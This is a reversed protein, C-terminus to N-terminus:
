ARCAALCPAAGPLCSRDQWFLTFLSLTSAARRVCSRQRRRIARRSCDDYLCDVQWPDDVAKVWRAFLEDALRADAERAATHLSQGAPAPEKLTMVDHFANGGARDRDREDGHRPVRPVRHGREPGRRDQRERSQSVSRASLRACCRLHAVGRAPVFRAAAGLVIMLCRGAAAGRRVPDDGVAFSGDGLAALAGTYDGNNLLERATLMETLM